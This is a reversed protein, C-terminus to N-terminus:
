KHVQFKYSKLPYHQGQIQPPQSFINPKFLPNTGSAKKRLGVGEVGRRILGNTVLLQNIHSSSSLLPIIKFAKEPKVYPLLHKNLGIKGVTIGAQQAGSRNQFYLKEQQVGQMDFSFPIIEHPNSKDVKIRSLFDSLTMYKKKIYNPNPLFASFVELLRKIRASAPKIKSEMIYAIALHDVTCDFDGKALQQKFKSINVCLGLLELETISYNVAAPLLRKSAYGILKPTNNQIKFLAYVAATKSTDSFLQFIGRNDPLHLVPYKLLRAKIEEVAWQHM